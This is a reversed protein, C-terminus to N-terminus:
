PELCEPAGPTVPSTMELDVLGKAFFRIAMNSETVQGEAGTNGGIQECVALHHFPHHSHRTQTNNAINEHRSQTKTKKLGTTELNVQLAPCQLLPNV